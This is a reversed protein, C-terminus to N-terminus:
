KHIMELFAEVRLKIQESDEKSYNTEITLSPINAKSLAQEVRFNETTFPTCFMLAYNIVGDVNFKKAMQTINDIREDNPTFCACDIKFYRDVINEILEDVTDGEEKTLNSIARMGTCSEESVIVGGAKEVIDYVKWNPSAMPCGTVLFRPKKSDSIGINKSARDELEDAIKNIGQTFKEVDFLTSFQHLLLSDKGSIPPNEAKRTEMFRLMAKRKENVKKIGAKLSKVTLKNGTLEEIQKAFRKFETLLLERDAPRKCQPIEMVYMNKIDKNYIDYAKKKGDCTTEGVILDSLEIFPCLKMFTLGFFGKILSCTNRPLYKEAHMLGAESGACLGTSMANAAFIIEDPVYICLTGILKQGNQKANYIEEVRETAFADIAWDSFEKIANPRNKESKFIGEYSTQRGKAGNLMGQADLGVKEWLTVYKEFEM